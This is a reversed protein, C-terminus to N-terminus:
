TAEWPEDRVPAPHSTPPGHDSEDRRDFSYGSRRTRAFMRELTDGTGIGSEAPIMPNGVPSKFMQEISSVNPVCSRM